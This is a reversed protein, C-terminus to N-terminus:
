RNRVRSPGSLDLVESSEANRCNQKRTESTPPTSRCAALDTTRNQNNANYWDVSRPTVTTADCGALSMSIIALMLFSVKKM